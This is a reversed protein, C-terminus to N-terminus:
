EAGCDCQKIGGLLSVDLPGDPMPGTFSALARGLHYAERLATPHGDIAGRKDAQNVFLNAFYSMELADLYYTMTLRISDFMKKGRSGGVALVLARRDREEDAFLPEHLVYKRAWLCQCRDILLKAQTSVTMFYIPTAFILRDAELMKDFVGAFDDDLHCRGTRHCRECATCPRIDLDRLNVREVRDAISEAGDLAEALLRDTNGGERPSAAIGLIKRSM